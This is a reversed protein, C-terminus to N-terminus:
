ERGLLERSAVRLGSSRAFELASEAERLLEEATGADSPFEAAGARQDLGAEQKLLLRCKDVVALAGSLGTHTLILVFEGNGRYSIRDTTRIQEVLLRAMEEALAEIGGGGWKEAAHEWDDVSLLLLSVPYRYRRAAILENDLDRAAHQWKLIGTGSHTPTLEEILRTDHRRRLADRETQEGLADALLGVGLLGVLAVPASAALGDQGETLLRLAVFVLTGLLAAVLGIRAVPRWLGLTAVLGALLPLLLATEGREVYAGAALFLSSLVALLVAWAKAASIEGTM